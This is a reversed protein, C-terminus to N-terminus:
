FPVMNILLTLVRLLFPVWIILLAIVKFVTIWVQFRTPVILSALWAIVEVVITYVVAYM